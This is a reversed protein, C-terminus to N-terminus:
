GLYVTLADKRANVHQLTIHIYDEPKLKINGPAPMMCEIMFEPILIQYGEKRKSLVIAETKQGIRSELNKLLWYRNRRFQIRATNRMPRELLQLFDSIDDESYPTDLGLVARIQRQTILDYYKRIPSTATVYANLGLGSHKEPANGLVFRSLQKRQMWNQYISDVEGQFLRQKPPPQSRFIAPMEQQALFNAMLWNALIMIESIFMRSPSERDVRNFNPNGDDIWVSMEPLSIQIAGQALRKQRFLRGIKYLLTLDGSTDLLTNADFYTLRQDVSIVSPFLEYQKVEGSLSLTAMLSIAPRPTEAILSCLNEALVPPVMSIKTDPMYISSGRALAEKDIASNKEVYHGVDAIHVWLRYQNGLDEVSVADDFDLTAQGDITITQLDTLDKRRNNAPPEFGPISTEDCLTAAQELVEKPFDTSIELQLLDLNEDPHWVGAKVLIDFIDEPNKIGARQLMKKATEHTESEKGFLYFAKLIRIADGHKDAHNKEPTTTQGELVAKLWRSGDSVLREKETEKRAKEAAQQVQQESYPFFSNTNFKFFLRNQFFARIVASQHDHNPADPFIFETMTALDIWEQESNLVEWLAKIDIQDILSSRRHAVEKLTQVVTHRGLTLNLHVDSHLAIRNAALNVERDNETLLRLRNNKVELVAACLIKQRDIFEVLSGSKMGFRCLM